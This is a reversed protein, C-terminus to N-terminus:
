IDSFEKQWFEAIGAKPDLEYNEFGFKTYAKKAAQNNSLVELTLKCAGLSKALEEVKELLKLSVGKGRYEKLVTIDHINVIPKAKFTSFGIICNALGIATSDKYALVSFAFPLKALEKVLNEKVEKTLGKCGGMPDKAYNDLLYVLDQAHKPNNYDAKIIEIM